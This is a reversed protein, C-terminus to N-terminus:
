LSNGDTPVQPIRRDAYQVDVNEHSHPKFLSGRNV